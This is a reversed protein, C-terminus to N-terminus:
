GADIHEGVAPQQEPDADAIHFALEVRDTDRVLLAARTGALVDVSSLEKALVVPNRQALLIIGSGLNIRETVAAAFSLAAITDLMPFEPPIPSPPEQPDIAVVHEGTWASEFGCSDLAGLVRRMADPTGLPGNNFGFYGIHM